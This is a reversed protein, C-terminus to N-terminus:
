CRSVTRAIEKLYKADPCLGQILYKTDPCPGKIYGKFVSTDDIEARSTDM